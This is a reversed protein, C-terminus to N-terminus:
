IERLRVTKTESLSLVKDYFVQIGRDDLQYISNANERTIEDIYVKKLKEHDVLPSFDIPPQYDKDFASKGHSIVLVHPNLSRFSEHTRPDYGHIPNKRVDLHELNPCDALPSIDITRKGTGVIVVKELLSCSPLPTLDLSTCQTYQLNLNKLNPLHPLLIEKGHINGDVTLETISPTDNLFTLDLCTDPNLVHKARVHGIEKRLLIALGNYTPQRDGEITIKSLNPYQKLISQDWQIIDVFTTTFSEIPLSAPLKVNPTCISSVDLMKINPLSSLSSLNLATTGRHVIKLTKPITTDILAAFDVDSALDGDLVLTELHETKISRIDEITIKDSQVTFSKDQTDEGSPKKAHGM